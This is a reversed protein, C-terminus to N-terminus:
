EWIKWNIKRTRLLKVYDNNFNQNSRCVFLVTKNPLQGMLFDVDKSYSESEVIDYGAMLLNRKQDYLNVGWVCRSGQVWINFETELEMVYIELVYDAKKETTSVQSFLETEKLLDATRKQTADAMSDVLGKTEPRVMDKIPAVYIGKGQELEFGEKIYGMGMGFFNKEYGESKLRKKTESYKSKAARADPEKIMSSPVRAQTASPVVLILILIMLAAARRM